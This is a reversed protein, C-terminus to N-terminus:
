SSPEPSVLPGTPLGERVAGPDALAKDLQGTLAPSGVLRGNRFLVNGTSDVIVTTPVSLVALRHALDTDIGANFEAYGVNSRSDRATAIAKRQAECQACRPGTFLVVTVPHDGFQTENWGHDGAARRSRRLAAWKGISFVLAVGTAVVVVIIIRAIM